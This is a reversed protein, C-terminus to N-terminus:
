ASGFRFSFWAEETEDYLFGIRDLETKHEESIDTLEELPDMIWLIDHTTNFPSQINKTGLYLRFINLAKIFDEM